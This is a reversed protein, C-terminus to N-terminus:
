RLRNDQIGLLKLARVQCILTRKGFKCPGLKRAYNYRGFGLAAEYSSINPITVSSVYLQLFWVLLFMM